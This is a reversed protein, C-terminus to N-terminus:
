KKKVLLTFSDYFNEIMKHSYIHNIIIKQSLFVNFHGELSKYIRFYIMCKFSYHFIKSSLNRSHLSRNCKMKKKKREEYLIYKDNDRSLHECLRIILM